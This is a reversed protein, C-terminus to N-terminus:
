KYKRAMLSRAADTLGGTSCELAEASRAYRGAAASNKCPAQGKQRKPTESYFKDKGSRNGKASVAQDSLYKGKTNGPPEELIM